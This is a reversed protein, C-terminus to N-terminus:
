KVIKSIKTDSCEVIYFGTESNWDTGKTIEKWEKSAGQYIIKALSSCGFFADEGVSTVDSPITVETLSTCDSFAYAGVSTVGSPIIVETLSTCDSFAYAGVSAVGSPIVLKKVEAGNVYLRHAYSLPNSGITEFSINCWAGVNDIYVGTLGDCGRFANKGISKVNSRMTVSTLNSCDLFAYDGIREINEGIVVSTITKKRYFVGQMKTSASAISTVRKDQYVAPIVVEASSGTYGSVAYETGDDNLEFKLGETYYAPDIANCNTCVGNAYTHESESTDASGAGGYLYLDDSVTIREITRTQTHAPDNQCVREEEGEEENTARKTVTWEGWDHDTAPIVEEESHSPDENCTRRKCGDSTCDAPTVIQWENWSHTHETISVGGTEDAIKGDIAYEDTTKDNNNASPKCATVVGSSLAAMLVGLLAVKGKQMKLGEM